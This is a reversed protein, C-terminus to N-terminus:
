FILQCTHVRRSGESESLGLLPALSSNHLLIHRMDRVQILVRLHRANNECREHLTLDQNSALCGIRRRIDDKTGNADLLVM